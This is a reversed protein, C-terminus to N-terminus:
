KKSKEKYIEFYKAATENDGKDRYLIALKQYVEPNDPAIEKAKLLFEEAKEYEKLNLYSAGAVLYLFYDNKYIGSEIVKDLLKVAEEHKGLVHLGYGRDYLADINTPDIEIARALISDGEEYKKLPHYTRGEWFLANALEKEKARYRIIWQTMGKIKNKAIGEKELINEMEKLEVGKTKELIGKIKKDDLNIQTKLNEKMNKLEQAFLEAAKKFREIANEYEKKSFQVRGLIFEAEPSIKKVKLLKKVVDEAKEYDEKEVYVRGLLAYSAEKEPDIEIAKKIFIIASDVKGEVIYQQGGYQFGVWVRYKMNEDKKIKKLYNTDLEIAKAYAKAAEKYDRLQVSVEGLYFYAEANNPNEKIEARLLSDAREYRGDRIDIKAGEVRPSSACGIYFLFSFVMFLIVVDRKKM